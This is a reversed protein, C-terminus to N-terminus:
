ALDCSRLEQVNGIGLTLSKSSPLVNKSIRKVAYKEVAVQGYLSLIGSATDIFLLWISCPNQRDDTCTALYDLRELWIRAETGSPPDRLSQQPRHRGRQLRCSQQKGM